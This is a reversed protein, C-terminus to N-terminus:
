TLTVMGEMNGAYMWGSMDGSINRMQTANKKLVMVYM